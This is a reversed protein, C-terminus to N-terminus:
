GFMGYFRQPLPALCFESSIGIQMISTLQTFSQPTLDVSDGQLLVCCCLLVILPWIINIQSDQSGLIPHVRLPKDSTLPGFFRKVFTDLSM